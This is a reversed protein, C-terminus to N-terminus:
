RWSLSCLVPMWAIHANSGPGVGSPNRSELSMTDSEKTVPSECFQDVEYVMSGSLISGRRGLGKCKDYVWEGDDESAALWLSKMHSWQRARELKAAVERMMSRDEGNMSLCSRVALEEMTGENRVRGELIEMLRGEKVLAVFYVGLKKGEAMRALSIPKQGTLM